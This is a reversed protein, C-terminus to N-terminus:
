YHKRDPYQEWFTRYSPWAQPMSGKGDTLEAADSPPLGLPSQGLPAGYFLRHKRSAFRWAGNERVYSDIYVIQQVLWEGNWEAECRSYVTGSARDPDDPDIDIRHNGVNIISQPSGSFSRAFKEVLEERTMEFDNSIATAAYLSAMTEPDKSDAAIAYRYALQQIEVIDAAWELRRNPDM